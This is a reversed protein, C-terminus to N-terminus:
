LLANKRNLDLVKYQIKKEKLKDFLDDSDNDLKLKDFLGM